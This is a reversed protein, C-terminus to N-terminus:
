RSMVIQLIIIECLFKIIIIFDYMGYYKNWKSVRSCYMIIIGFFNGEVAFLIITPIFNCIFSNSVDCPVNKYSLIYPIIIMYYLKRSSYNNHLLLSSEKYLIKDLEM